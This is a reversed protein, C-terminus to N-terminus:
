LNFELCHCPFSISQRSYNISKTNIGQAFMLVSNDGCYVSTDSPM